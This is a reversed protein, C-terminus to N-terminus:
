AIMSALQSLPTAPSVNFGVSRLKKTLVNAYSQPDNSDERPAYINIYDQFTAQAYTKGQRDLSNQLPKSKGTIKAMLDNKLAVMGAQLTPFIAFNREDKGTAGAQGIYKLNGPNNNRQSVSGPFFGEHEQHASALASLFNGSPAMAQPAYGPQENSGLGVGIMYDYASESQIPDLSITNGSVTYSLHSGFDSFYADDAAKLKTLMENQGTYSRGGISLTGSKSLWSPDSSMRLAPPTFPLGAQSYTLQISPDTIQGNVMDVQSRLGAVRADRRQKSADFIGQVTDQMVPIDEKTFTDKKGLFNIGIGSLLGTVGDAQAGGTINKYAVTLAQLAAKKDGKASQYTSYAEQFSEYAPRYTTDYASITKDSTYATRIDGATQQRLQFDKAYSAGAGEQQKLQLETDWKSQEFAFNRNSSDVSFQYQKLWQEAQLKATREQSAMTAMQGAIDLTKESTQTRLTTQREWSELLLDNVAQQRAQLSSASQLGIRELAGRLEKMNDVTGNMYNNQNELYLGSFKADLDTRAFSYATQLESLRSDFEADSGAVASLGADQGFGGALAIQAVMADHQAKKQKTITREQKTQEWALREESARQQKALNEDSQERTDQLLGQIADASTKYGERIDSLQADIADFTSAQRGLMGKTLEANEQLSKLMNQQFDQLYPALFESGPPLNALAAGAGASIAAPATAQATSVGSTGLARRREEARRMDAQQLRQTNQTEIAARRTEFQEPTEAVGGHGEGSFPTLKSTDILGLQRTIDQGFQLPARSEIEGASPTYTVGGPSQAITKAQTLIGAATPTTTQGLTTVLPGQLQKERVEAALPASIQSVPLGSAQNAALQEQYAQKQLEVNAGAVRTSYRTPDVQEALTRQILRHESLNIRM